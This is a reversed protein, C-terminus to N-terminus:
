AELTNLLYLGNYFALCLSDYDEWCHSALSLWVIAHILKLRYIDCNEIKNLFYQTLHEWGSPAIKYEVKDDKISLEFNRVNFQDFAGELSYYVKAWDYYVDGFLETKGFYGRADIFYINRKDDILTNTLTCDGHIIGFKCGDKLIKHVKEALFEPHVLANECKVGNIEISDYNSFPIVSEISRLRKMTKTYYDEQMDFYNPCADTFNHLENLRDFLNDVVGKKEEDNLNVRFINDGHIRAMTLPSLSYLKPIGVFGYKDVANYWKVERDILAVAEKTLGEKIVKDDQITIKNYPRCRNEKSDVRNLAELTGTEQTNEMSFAKLELGTNKIYKTFSGAEPVDAIRSKKDFLFCGAVGQDTSPKKELINGEFSWSCPFKSTVGVYCGDEAADFSWNEDLILDSWILMFPQEEPIYRLAEKIGAVNGEEISHVLIYNVTAYNELYRSLVDFKYDGIVIFKKDPYREFLHFLIPLNNVPVLSKPRNKTLPFLRTGKGGAQVIIYEINM